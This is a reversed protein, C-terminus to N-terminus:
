LFAKLEYFHCGLKLQNYLEGQLFLLKDCETILAVKTRLKSYDEMLNKADQFQLKKNSSLILKTPIIILM